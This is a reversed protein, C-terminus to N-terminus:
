RIGEGEVHGWSVVTARGHYAAEHVRPCRPRGFLLWTTHIVAASLDTLGSGASVQRAGRYALDCFDRYYNWFTPVSDFEVEAGWCFVDAFKKKASLSRHELFPTYPPSERGGAGRRISFKKFM